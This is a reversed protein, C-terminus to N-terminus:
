NGTYNITNPPPLAWRSRLIYGLMPTGPPQKSYNLFDLDFNYNRTPAQYYVGPNQFQNTAYISAFLNMISTNLTLVVGSSGSGWDELLRPLNHVGGSFQSTGSGTSPVIGTLIAANVTDSIAASKAVAASLATASYKDNWNPSLITLADSVLSAPYSACTNTTGQYTSVGCNYIGQVYLPIPRRSPLAAPSPTAPLRSTTPLFTAAMRSGSPPLSLVPTLSRNDAAYLINPVVSANYLGATNPFKTNMANNTVM